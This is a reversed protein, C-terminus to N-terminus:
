TTEGRNRISVDEVGESFLGDFKRLINIAERCRQLDFMGIHCEDMPIGLRDALWKYVENRRMKGQKWLPDLLEHAEMKAQRLPKNALRGLPRTGDSDYKLNKKHCGVHAECPVCRWFRLDKLDSRGHYLVEGTVLEANRGCYDCKVPDM